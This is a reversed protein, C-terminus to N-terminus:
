PPAERHLKRGGRGNGTRVGREGMAYNGLVFTKGNWSPYTMEPIVPASIANYATIKSRRLANGNARSGSM